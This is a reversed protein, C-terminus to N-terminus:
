LGRVSDSCATAGRQGVHKVGDATIHDFPRPILRARCDRSIARQGLFALGRWHGPGRRVIAVGLEILREALEPLIEQLLFDGLAQQTHQLRGSFCALFLLPLLASGLERGAAEFESVIMKQQARLRPHGFSCSRARASRRACVAQEGMATAAHTLWAHSLVGALSRGPEEARLQRDAAPAPATTATSSGTTGVLTAPRDM